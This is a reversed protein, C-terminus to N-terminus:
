FSENYSFTITSAFLGVDYDTDPTQGEPVFGATSAANLVASALTMSGIRTTDICAVDITATEGMPAAGHVTAHFETDSREISVAPLAAGEPVVDPFIRASAPTPGVIALVAADNSLVSFLDSEASM